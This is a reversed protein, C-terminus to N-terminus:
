CGPVELINQFMSLFTLRHSNVVVNEYTRGVTLCGQIDASNMKGYLINDYNSFTGNDTYVLYKCVVRDDSGTSCVQDKDRVTFSVTQQSSVSSAIGIVLVIIALLIVVPAMISKGSHHSSHM